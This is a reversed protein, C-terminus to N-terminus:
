EGIVLWGGEDVALPVPDLACGEGLGGSGKGSHASFSADHNTCRLTQGDQSLIRSGRQDLPLYQHPCANVYARPGDALGVLLLPFRGGQSDLLMSHTTGVALESAPLLRAGSAPSSRYTKWADNM